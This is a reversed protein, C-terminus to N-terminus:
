DVSPKTTGDPYINAATIEIQGFDRLVCCCVFYICLVHIHGAYFPYVHITYMLACKYLLICMLIIVERWTIM